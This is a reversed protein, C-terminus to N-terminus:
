ALLSMILFTTAVHAHFPAAVSIISKAISTAFCLYVVPGVKKQQICCRACTKNARKTRKTTSASASRKDTFGEVELTFQNCMPNATEWKSLKPLKPPLDPGFCAQAKRRRKRSPISWTQSVVSARQDTIQNESQLDSAPPTNLTTQLLESAAPFRPEISMQQQSLPLEPSPTVIRPAKLLINNPYQAYVLSCAEAGSPIVPPLGQNPEPVQQIISPSIRFNEADNQILAVNPQGVVSSAATLNAYHPSHDHVFQFLHSNDSSHGSSTSLMELESTSPFMSGALYNKTIPAFEPITDGFDFSFQASVESNYGTSSDAGSLGLLPQHHESSPFLNPCSAYTYSDLYPSSINGFGSNCHCESVALSKEHETTPLIELSVNSSGRPDLYQPVLTTALLENNEFTWESATANDV